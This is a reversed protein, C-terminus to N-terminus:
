NKKVYIKGKNSALVYNGDYVEKMPIFQYKNDETEDEGACILM